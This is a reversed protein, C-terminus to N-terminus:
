AEGEFYDLNADLRNRVVITEEAGGIADAYATVKDSDPYVVVGVPEITSLMLVVLTEETDNRVEHAGDPGRRFAVADWARLTREGSPTRLTPSGSVVLLWEEEAYEYHYPCIREGPGLEYLSAGLKEAGLAGRLRRERSAYGPRDSGAEWADDFLNVSV